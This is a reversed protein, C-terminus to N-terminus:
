RTFLIINTLIFSAVSIVTGLNGVLGASKIRANNPNVIIIDNQRISYIPDNFWDASTLDVEMISRVGDVERILLIDQRNGNITLDGAYGIAQPLTIYQETFSYTGPANVEGLVTVKANVIRVTVEPELLYGKDSLQKELFTSLQGVTMNKVTLSGLTPFKIKGEEDVLYGQLQMMQPNMFGGAGINQQKINFPIATEPILAGVTINLIDNPQIQNVHYTTNTKAYEKANQFYLIDKKTTCSSFFVVILFALVPISNLGRFFM